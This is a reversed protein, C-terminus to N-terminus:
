TAACSDLESVMDQIKGDISSVGRALLYDRIAAEQANLQEGVVSVQRQLYNVTSRAGSASTSGGRCTPVRCSM